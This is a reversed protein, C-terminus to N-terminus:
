GFRLGAVVQQAARLQTETPRKRRIDIWVEVDRGHVRGHIRYEPTDPAGELTTAPRKPIVLRLPPYHPRRELPFFVNVVIGNRPMNTAWGGPGSHYNWSLAYAGDVSRFSHWGSPLTAFRVPPPLSM